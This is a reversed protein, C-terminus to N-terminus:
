IFTKISSFALMEYTQSMGLEVRMRVTKRMFFYKSVRLKITIAKADDASLIQLQFM